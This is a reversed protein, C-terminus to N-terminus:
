RILEKHFINICMFMKWLSIILNQYELQNFVLDISENILFFPGIIVLAVIKSISNVGQASCYIWDANGIARNMYDFYNPVIRSKVKRNKKLEVINWTSLNSLLQSEVVRGKNYFKSERFWCCVAAQLIKKPIDGEFVPSNVFCVHFPCFSCVKYIVCLKIEYPIHIWLVARNCDLKKLKNLQLHEHAFTSM